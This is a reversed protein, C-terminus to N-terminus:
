INGETINNIDNNTMEGESGQRLKVISNFIFKRDSIDKIGLDNLDSKDLDNIVSGNVNQEEFTQLLTNKYKNLRDKDLNIIWDIFEPSSWSSYNNIDNKTAGNTELPDDDDMSSDSDNGKTFGGVTSSRKMDDNNITFQSSARAGFVNNGNAPTGVKVNDYLEEDSKSNSNELGTRTATGDTIQEKNNNNINILELQVINGMRDNTAPNHLNASSGGHRPPSIDSSMESTSKMTRLENVQFKLQAQRRFCYFGVIFVCCILIVVTILLGIILPNAIPSQTQKGSDPISLITPSVTPTLTPLITSITPFISPVATPTASPFQSSKTPANTPYLTPNNTPPITFQPSKTPFYTPPQTNTTPIFSPSMTPFITPNITNRTPINTNDTPSITPYNTPINTPTKTNITPADSVPLPKGYIVIYDVRCEEFLSDAAIRLLIKIGINNYSDHPLTTLFLYDRNPARTDLEAQSIQRAINWNLTDNISYELNCYENNDLPYMPSDYIGYQIIIDTYGVTSISSTLYMYEENNVDGELVVARNNGGPGTYGTGLNSIEAGNVLTWHSALTTANIPDPGYLIDFDNTIFGHTPNNTPKITPSDSVKTPMDSTLTPFTTVTTPTNTTISPAKSPSDTVTTPPYTDRIDGYITVYDIFCWEDKAGTNFFQIRIGINNDADNPLTRNILESTSHSELDSESFSDLLVFNTSNNISYRLGCRSSTHLPFNSPADYMGYLVVDM